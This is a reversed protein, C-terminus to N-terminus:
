HQFPAQNSVSLAKHLRASFRDWIICVEKPFNRRMKNKYITNYQLDFTRGLFGKLGLARKFNFFFCLYSVSEKNSSKKKCENLQDCEM